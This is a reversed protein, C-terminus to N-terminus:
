REREWLLDGRNGVLATGVVQSIQVSPHTKERLLPDVAIWVLTTTWRAARDTGPYTAFQPQEDAQSPIDLYRDARERTENPDGRSIFARIILCAKSLNSGPSIAEVSLALAVATPQASEIRRGARQRTITSKM